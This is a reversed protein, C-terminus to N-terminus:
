RRYTVSLGFGNHGYRQGYFAHNYGAEFARSFARTYSSGGGMQSNYGWPNGQQQYRDYYGSRQRSDQMGQLYGAWYGREWGMNYARDYRPNYRYPVRYFRFNGERYWYGDPKSYRIRLHPSGVVYREFNHRHAVYVRSSRQNYRVPHAVRRHDRDDLKSLGYVAAGVVAGVALATVVKETTSKREHRRNVQAEALGTAAFFFAVVVFGAIIKRM